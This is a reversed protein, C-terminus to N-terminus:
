VCVGPAASVCRSLASRWGSLGEELAFIGWHWYLHRAFLNAESWDGETEKLLRKGEDFQGRMEHVHVAAHLAWIDQADRTLAGMALEEARELDGCEEVGFALMGCVHGYAPMAPDWAQFARAVSNRLARSDGAFFYLDHLLRLVMADTPLLSLQHELVRAALGWRGAALAEVALVLHVERPTARGARVAECGALRAGAVLPHGGAHGTSLLVFAGLLAHGAVFHPDLATAARLAKIPDGRLTLYSTVAADHLRVAESSACTLLQMHQSPLLAPRQTALGRSLLRPLAAPLRQALM